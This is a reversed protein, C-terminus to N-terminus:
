LLAVGFVEHLGRRGADTLVVARPRPGRRIWDVTFLRETVATGLAGALHHRQESWDMCYRIPPRHRAVADVDVGFGALQRRGHPTLQYAVDRGPASLRDASTRNGDGGTLVGGDLLGVMLAVGLQGALHNYCTRARRMAHARTGQRLSRVPETPAIRALAELAEAVGSGALRFYRSRGNREVSLLGADVLRALHESITSAAVGAEGALVSASLARGDVLAMLVRAPEGMLGAVRAIDPEGISM